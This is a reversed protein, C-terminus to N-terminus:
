YRQHSLLRLYEEQRIRTGVSDREYGTTELVESDIRPFLFFDVALIYKEPVRNGRFIKLM